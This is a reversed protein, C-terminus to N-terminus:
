GSFKTKDWRPDIWVREVPQRIPMVYTQQWYPGQVRRHYLNQVAGRWLMGAPMTGRAHIRRSIDMWRERLETPNKAASAKEYLADLEADCINSHNFGGDDYFWGCKLRQWSDALNSYGGLNAVIVDHSRNRYAEDIYKAPDIQKFETKIGIDAWYQQLALTQASAPGTQHWVMAKSTDFGSQKVLEKAGAPDYPIKRVVGAPPNAMLAVHEFADDSIFLTGAAIKENIANRDVAMVMAEILLPIKVGKFIPSAWNLFVLSGFPSRQPLAQLHQLQALRTWATASGARHYDFEGAEAAADSANADGYRILYRDVYPKGLAFDDVRALEVFQKEVVRTVKFPGSAVPMTAYQNGEIAKAPDMDKYIHKPMPPLNISLDKIPRNWWTPDPSALEVKVTMADVKVVGGSDEVNATPNAAWAKAGKVQAYTSGAMKVTYAPHIAMHYGWVVDDATIPKGDHWKAKPNIHFRYARGAEVEDWTNAVGQDWEKTLEPTRGPGWGHGYWLQLWLVDNIYHHTSGLTRLPSFVFPDPMSSSIALTGGVTVTTEVIKEVVKEVQKTVVKEVEKTVVKEVPVEKTVVKEVPVEKTVIKEVQQTVIKEVVKTEGCAALVAAVAGAVGGVSGIRLLRRRSISLREAMNRGREGPRSGVAFAPGRACSAM